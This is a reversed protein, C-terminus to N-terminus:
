LSIVGAGLERVDGGVQIRREADIHLYLTSPRGASEGQCIEFTSGLPRDLALCWGGLNATASGTAPDELMADGQQFFFRAILREGARAFVYAMSADNKNKL